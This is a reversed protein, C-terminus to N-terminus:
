QCGSRREGPAELGPDSSSALTGDPDTTRNSLGGKVQALTTPGGADGGVLFRPASGISSFATANGDDDDDSLADSVRKQMAAIALRAGSPPPTDSEGTGSHVSPTPSAFDPEYVVSEGTFSTRSIGGSAALRISHISPIHRHRPPTVKLPHSM